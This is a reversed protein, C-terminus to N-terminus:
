SGQWDAKYPTDDLGSQSYTHAAWCVSIISIIINSERRERKKGSEREKEIQKMGKGEGREQVTNRNGKKRDQRYSTAPFTSSRQAM